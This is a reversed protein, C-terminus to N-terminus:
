GCRRRDPLCVRDRGGRKARYLEADAAALLDDLRHGPPAAAVGISATVAVEVGDFRLGRVARRLREAVEVAPLLGAGPLLIGFEEGGLRGVVDRERVTRLCAAAVAVLVEDGFAHGHCDNVQKFGDIDVMLLAAPGAELAAAALATFGRRNHVGTLPDTEALRRLREQEHTCPSVDEIYAFFRAVPAGPVAAPVYRVRLVASPNALTPEAVMFCTEEGALVRPLHRAAEAYLAPPLVEAMSRDRVSEGAPGFWVGYTRNGFLYRGDRGICAVAVPLADLLDSFDATGFRTDM